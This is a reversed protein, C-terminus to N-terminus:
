RFDALSIPPCYLGLESRKWWMGTKRKEDITTFRYEFLVARIFRPPHAAFPNSALLGLVSPEGELLRREFAVFWANERYSGLAAFWMQWDLRPQHPSVYAPRRAPDGPKWRFGYIKWESGDDSGQIEIEPRRTTMVAFLGYRNVSRFPEALRYASTAAAPLPFAPFLLSIMQVTSLVALLLGVAIAGRRVGPRVPERPRPTRFFRAIRELAADDLLLLCLAITLINFFAYNGTAGILIEFAITALAAGHRLRRPAFYFFPVALEVAFMAAASAKQIAAPLQHAYWGVVTPLPQTQYHFRLATLNRWTPDLSALKVFGSSFMLRFLLWVSLARFFRPSARFFVALLGAELLLADWQFGLFEQGAISLSLYIAWLCALAVSPLVELAALLSFLLGAALLVRLFADSSSLWFLTPAVLFKSQGFNESIWGLYTGVPTIGRSGFLGRAQLALSGIALFYIFGILRPFLRTARDFTSARPEEGWLLRTAAHAFGRHSAILRYALETAPAFGPVSEYAALLRRRKQEAALARFVAEAGGFVTGDTDVLRVATRFAELPIEPFKSAAEQYPARDIRDGFIREWRALWYRCFGCDGDFILLPKEPPQAVHFRPPRM